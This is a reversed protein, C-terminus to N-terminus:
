KGEAKLEAGTKGGHKRLLAATETSANPNDPHTAVDLPTKSFADKANVDAGNAILLEVIEKHDEGVARHLPTRGVMDKADVDAGNAILLEVIEKHGGITNAAAFLPTMGGIGEANVDAGEAILLEVIEM